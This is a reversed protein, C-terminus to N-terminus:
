PTTLPSTDPCTNPCTTGQDIIIPDTGDTAINEVPLLDRGASDFGVIIAHIQHEGERMGYYIRVGKCNENQLLKDFAVRDFSECHPILHKGKHEERM